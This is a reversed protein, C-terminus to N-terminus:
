DTKESKDGYKGDETRKPLCVYSWFEGRGDKAFVRIYSRLFKM